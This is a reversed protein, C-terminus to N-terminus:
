CRVQIEDKYRNMTETLLLRQHQSEDQERKLQEVNRELSENKAVWSSTESEREIKIRKIKDELSQFYTPNSLM